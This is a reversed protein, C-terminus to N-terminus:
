RCVIVDHAHCCSLPARAVKVLPVTRTGGNKAGGIKKVGNKALEAGAAKVSSELAAKFFTQFESEQLEGDRSKDCMGYLTTIKEQAPLKLHM